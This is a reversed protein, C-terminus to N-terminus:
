LCTSLAAAVDMKLLPKLCEVNVARVVFRGVLVCV